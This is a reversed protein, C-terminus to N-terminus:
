QGRWLAIALLAGLTVFLTVAVFIEIIRDQQAQRNDSM